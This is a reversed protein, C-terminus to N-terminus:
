RKSQHSFWASTRREEGATRPDPLEDRGALFFEALCRSYRANDGFENDGTKEWRGDIFRDNTLEELFGEYQEPQQCVEIPLTVFGRGGPKIRGSILGERWSQSLPTAIRLLDGLGAKKKRKLQRPTAGSRQFGPIAWDADLSTSSGKLPWVSPRNHTMAYVRETVKDGDEDRGGGSDIGTIAPAVTLETGEIPWRRDHAAWFEDISEAAGWDIFHGTLMGTESLWWGSVLWFFLLDNASVGTDAAFTLFRTPAPAIGRPTESQLRRAIESPEVSPPKPDYVRGLVSNCFHQWSQDFFQRAVWGWGSIALSYLAGFPANEPDGFALKSAAPWEGKIRGPKLIRGSKVKARTISQCAALWVGARLMAARDENGIRCGAECQYHATEEALDPDSKNEPGHDWKLGPGDPDKTGFVLIQYRGCHPCPVFRRLILVGPRKALSTIRCRGLTAPTSEFIALSDFPFTTLRALVLEVPDAEGTEATSYKSAESCFAYASPYGSLTGPAGSFARRIRCHKLDVSEKSRRHEPQMLVRTALCAELTPVIQEAFLKKETNEQNERMAVMPMPDNAAVSVALSIMLTTKGLGQAAWPLIIERITKDDFFELIQRAHPYNDLDFRIPSQGMRPVSVNAPIWQSHRFPPPPRWAGAIDQLFNPM